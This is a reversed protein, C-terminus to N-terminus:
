PKLGARKDKFFIWAEEAIELDTNQPGVISGYFAGVRKSISPEIHGGGTIELLEVQLKNSHEGWLMRRASTPNATDDHPFTHVAPTDPLRALKSWYEASDEASLVSGRSRSRAFRIEGGAYPMVPDKTGAVLMVSLPTEPLSCKSLAAMAAGVTAVGALRPAIEGALRLAMLGGNSMGMVYVRAPDVDHEAIAKDIMSSILASDDSNPNSSADRRCDNWGQISDSGKSGDPAMIVIQERDAIPLWLSLPAALRGQGLLQAATGGHGHLLILLAHKGPLPPQPLALLYHRQGEPRELYVSSVTAALAPTAAFSVCATLMFLIRNLMASGISHDPGALAHKALEQSQIASM